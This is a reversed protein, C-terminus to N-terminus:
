AVSADITVDVLVEKTIKVNFMGRVTVEAKYQALAVDIGVFEQVDEGDDRQLLTFADTGVRRVAIFYIDIM